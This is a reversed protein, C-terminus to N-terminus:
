ESIESQIIHTHIHIQAIHESYINNDDWFLLYEYRLDSLIISQQLHATSYINKQM